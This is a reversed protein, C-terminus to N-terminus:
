HKPNFLSMYKRPFEEGLPLWISEYDTSYYFWSEDSTVVDHWARQEQIELM